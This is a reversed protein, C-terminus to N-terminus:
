GRKIQGFRSNSPLWLLPGIASDAQASELSMMEEAIIHELLAGRMGSYGEPCEAQAM